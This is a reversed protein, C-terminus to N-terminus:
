TGVQFLVTSCTGSFSGALFAKLVPNAALDMRSRVPAVWRAFALSNPDSPHSLALSFPALALRAGVTM